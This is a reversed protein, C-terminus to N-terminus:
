RAHRDVVESHARKVSARTKSDPSFAVAMVSQM